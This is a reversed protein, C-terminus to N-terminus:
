KIGNKVFQEFVFQTVKDAGDKNLHHYGNYADEFDSSTLGIESYYENCDLYFIDEDEALDAVKAAWDGYNISQIYGDYMPAMVMCLTIGKKRCLQALKHYYQINIESIVKGSPNYEAGDYLAKTEASMHTESPHFSSYEWIGETYFLLNSGITEISTWNSHCRAISLLAYGWNEQLYQEMVAELKCLGFRMGDINSEKKWDKDPTETGFRYNYNDDLAFAELIIVNPHQYHLAEKVNFYAQVVNQSNSALIYSSQGTVDSIIDPDFSSYAHSNGVILIEVEGRKLVYFRQWTRIISNSPYLLLVAMRLFIFLFLLFAAIKLCYKGRLEWQRKVLNNAKM